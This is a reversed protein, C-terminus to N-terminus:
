VKTRVKDWRKVQWTIHGTAVHNKESDHVQALVTRTIADENQLPELFDNKLTEPDMKVEAFLKKKAQYHYEMRLESMIVRYKSPDLQTMMLLGTAFESITAIACAHIGRIHNLNRQEYPISTRVFDDGVELVRIGHRANFPIVFDLMMNLKWLAFGGAKAALLLKLLRKAKKM